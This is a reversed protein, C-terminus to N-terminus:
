TPTPWPKARSRVFLLPAAPPLSGRASGNLYVPCRLAEALEAARGRRPLAVGPQGGPDAPCQAAALRRAAEEVLKFDGYIKGPSRYKGPDVM